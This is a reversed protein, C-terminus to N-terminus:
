GTHLEEKGGLALSHTRKNDNFPFKQPGPDFYSFALNLPAGNHRSLNNGNEESTQNIRGLILTGTGTRTCCLLCSVFM